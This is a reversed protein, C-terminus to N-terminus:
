RCEPKEISLRHGQPLVVAKMGQLRTGVIARQWALKINEAQEATILHDVHVVAVADMPSEAKLEDVQAVVGSGVLTAAFRELMEPRNM